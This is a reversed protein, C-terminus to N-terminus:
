NVNSSPYTSIFVAKSAAIYDGNKREALQMKDASHYSKQLSNGFGYIDSQRGVTFRLPVKLPVKVPM